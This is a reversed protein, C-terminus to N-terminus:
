YDISHIIIHFCYLIGNKIHYEVNKKNLVLYRILNIYFGKGLKSGVSNKDNM